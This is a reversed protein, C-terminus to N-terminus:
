EGDRETKKARNRSFFPIRRPEGAPRRHRGDYDGSPVSGVIPVGRAAARGNTWDAILRYLVATVPVALLLGKIGFLGGGVITACLTWAGSLGVARGVIRPHILNDDVQQIVVIMVIFWLALIPRGTTLMVAACCATSVWPGIVPVLAFLAIVASVLEPYPMKFVRMGVYCLAGPVLCGALQGAIYSRFTFNTFSCFELVRESRKEDFVSRIFRRAHALLRDKDALLYISLTVALFLDVVMRATSFTYDLLKGLLGLALQEAKEAMAGSLAGLRETLEAGLRLKEIFSAAREAAASYISGANELLMRVAGIARPVILLVAASAIGAAFLFAAAASLAAAARRPCRRLVRKQLFSAPINVVYAISIGALVPALLRIGASVAGRVAALHEIAEYFLVGALVTFLLERYKRM